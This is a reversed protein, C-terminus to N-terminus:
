IVETASVDLDRLRDFGQWEAYIDSDAVEFECYNEASHIIKLGKTKGTVMQDSLLFDEVTWSSKGGRAVYQARVRFRYNM